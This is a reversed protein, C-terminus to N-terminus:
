YGQGGHLDDEWVAGLELKGVAGRAEVGGARDARLEGLLGDEDARVAADLVQAERERVPLLNLDQGGAVGVVRVREGHEPVGRRVQEGLSDAPEVRADLDRDPRRDLVAEVVVELEGLRDVFGVEIADLALDPALEGLTALPRALLGRAVLRPPAELRLGLRVLDLEDVGGFPLDGEVRLRVVAVVVERVEAASRMELVRPRDLGELQGTEGAGVPAAVGRVGLQRPDVACGEVRLGVEVGVELPQLLRLATVVATEAHLEVEEVEVLVRRPRREPMRLPHDDEVLELRQPPALVLPPAVDLHLRRQDVVLLQPLRRPVPLREALVHEQDRALVPRREPDLRHVTGPVHEQEPALQAGIALQREAEGLGGGQVSVLEGARQVAQKADAVDGLVVRVDEARGLLDLLLDEATEVEPEEDVVQELQVHPRLQRRSRSPPQSRVLLPVLGLRRQCHPM